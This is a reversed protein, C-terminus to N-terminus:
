AGTLMRVVAETVPYYFIKRLDKAQIKNLIKELSARDAPGPAGTHHRVSSQGAHQTGTRQALNNSRHVLSSSLKIKPKFSLSKGEKRQGASPGTSSLFMSSPAMQRTPPPPPPMMAGPSPSLTSSAASRQVGGGGSVIKLKITKIINAQDAARKKEQDAESKQRLKEQALEAKQRLKAEAAEVKARQREDQILV